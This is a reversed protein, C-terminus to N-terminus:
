PRQRGQQRQQVRCYTAARSGTTHPLFNKPGYSLKPMPKLATFSYLDVSATLLSSRLPLADKCSNSAHATHEAPKAAPKEFLFRVGDLVSKQAFAAKFMARYQDFALRVPNHTKVQETLGYEPVEAESAFTGFLRDWIILVGGYNRDLYRKNCAHHVRHHSPTNFIWELPGLKPVTDSHLFFQYIMSLSDITFIAFPHFGMLAMPTWFLYRHTHHFPVRVATSFNFKRSSHHTQHAAWFFRSEHGLRHFVYFIFDSILFGILWMYWTDGLQIPAFAYVVFFVALAMAKAIGGFFLGSIGLTLNALTDKLNYLRMQHVSSLALEALIAAVFLPVAILGYNAM